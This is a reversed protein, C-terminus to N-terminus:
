KVSDSSSLPYTGTGGKFLMEEYTKFGIDLEENTAIDYVAQAIGGITKAITKDFLSGEEQTVLDKINLTIEEEDAAFSTVTLLVIISILIIFIRRLFKKM